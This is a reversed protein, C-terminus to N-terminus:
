LLVQRPNGRKENNHNRISERVEDFKDLLEQPTLKSLDQNQLYLLALADFRNRPFMNLETKDSM